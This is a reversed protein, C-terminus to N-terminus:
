KAPNKKAAKKAAKKKPTHPASLILRLADDFPMQPVESPEKQKTKKMPSKM